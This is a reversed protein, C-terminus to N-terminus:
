YETTMMNREVPRSQAENTNINAWSIGEYNGEYDATGHNGSENIDRNNISYLESSPLTTSIINEIEKIRKEIQSCAENGKKSSQSYLSISMFTNMATFAKSSQSQGCSLFIFCFLIFFCLEIKKLISKM